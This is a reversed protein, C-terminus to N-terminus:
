GRVQLDFAVLVGGDARRTADDPAIIALERGKVVAKDNTTVPLVFGGALLDEALFIIHRDGQEVFGVGLFTPDYGVVRARVPVDYRPRNPGVGTYRRIFVTEGKGIRRRYMGKATEPTM